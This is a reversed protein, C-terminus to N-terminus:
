VAGGEDEVASGDSVGVGDVLFAAGGVVGVAALPLVLKGNRVHQTGYEKITVDRKGLEQHLDLLLCQILNRTYYLSHGCLELRILPQNGDALTLGTENFLTEMMKALTMQSLLLDGTYPYIGESM